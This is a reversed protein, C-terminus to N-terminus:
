LLQLNQRAVLLALVIIVCFVTPECLDCSLKLKMDDVGGFLRGNMNRSDHLISSKQNLMELFCHM